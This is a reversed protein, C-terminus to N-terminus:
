LTLEKNTPYIRPWKEEWDQELDEVPEITEEPIM